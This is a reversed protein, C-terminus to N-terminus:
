SIRGGATARSGQGEDDTDRSSPAAADTDAEADFSAAAAIDRFLANTAFLSDWDDFGVVRGKDLVLIRDCRQITSLRHAIMFVTRGASEEDFAEMVQRETRSDLASTAEDLVMVDAGKYLARALGIRQRQGGSLRVGREGVTTWYGSPQAAVFPALQAREIASQLRAADIEGAATGLAINEAVSADALYISQPVHAIRAQWEGANAATLAVGDVEIRGETPWLLGMLVDMLTTKGCGTTGVVGVSMGARVELDIDTLVPSSDPRYAFGVGRLRVLPADGPADIPIPRTAERTAIAADGDAPADELLVLLDELEGRQGQLSTWALYVLQMQPLLKQAGLALAGLIPIAQIVGGPRGSMLYSLGLMLLIGAAEMLVRPYAGIFANSAQAKRMENDHRNFRALYVPQLRDLLVDRIGGLGEQVTRVRETRSTAIEQSNNYLRRRSLLTTTLYLLSFFTAAILATKADIVLLVALIACGIFFAALGQVLQVVVGRTVSNVKEIAALVDSSNGAVHWAYPRHLTRRYLEGGIDAGLGYTVQYSVHYLFLRVSASLIALLAFAAGAWALVEGRDRDISGFVDALAPFRNMWDPEMLMALLPVVAGITAVEAAAGLATLGLLGFLQWRRRRSLLAYLKRLNSSLKKRM